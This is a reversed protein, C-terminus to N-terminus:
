QQGRSKDVQECPSLGECALRHLELDDRGQIALDISELDWCDEDSMFPRAEKLFAAALDIAFDRQKKIRTTRDFQYALEAEYEDRIRKKDRAHQWCEENLDHQVEMQADLLTRLEKVERELVAIRLKDLDVLKKM